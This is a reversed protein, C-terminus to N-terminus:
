SPKFFSTILSQNTTGDKTLEASSQKVKRLWRRRTSPPGSLLRSLSRQCYHQDGQCLLHPRSHYYQIEIAQASQSQTDVDSTDHLCGNRAIWLRRVHACIASIIQMMRKAGKRSDRINTHMEFQAMDAWDRSFYGKIASHWSIEQQSSLASEILSSFHAPYQHTTPIFTTDSTTTHLIGALM